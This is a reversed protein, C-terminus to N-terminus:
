RQFILEFTEHFWVKLPLKLYPMTLSVADYILYTKGLQVKVHELSPVVTLTCSPLDEKM